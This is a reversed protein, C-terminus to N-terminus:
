AHQGQEHECAPKGAIDRHTARVHAAPCRYPADIDNPCQRSGPRRDAEQQSQGPAARGIGPVRHLHEAAECCRALQQQIEVHSGTEMFTTTGNRLLEAVTFVTWLRVAEDIAARDNRSDYRPDGWM